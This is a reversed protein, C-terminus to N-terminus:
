KVLNLSYFTFIRDDTMLHMNESKAQVMLLRDFPDHHVLPLDKLLISHKSTLELEEFGEDLCVKVIDEPFKLKNKSAKIAMEAISVSSFYILNSTDAILDVYHSKLKKSDELFWIIIHTDLLIKM